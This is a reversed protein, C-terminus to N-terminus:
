KAVLGRCIYKKFGFVPLYFTTFFIRSVQYFNISSEPFPLNIPIPRSLFHNATVKPSEREGM